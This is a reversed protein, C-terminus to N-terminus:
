VRLAVCTEVGEGIFLRLGGVSDLECAAGKPSSGRTFRQELKCGDRDLFTQQICKVEGTLIDRFAAVFAPESSFELRRAPAAQAQISPWPTATLNQRYSLARSNLYLEAVTGKASLM